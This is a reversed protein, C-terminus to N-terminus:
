VSAARHFGLRLAETDPHGIQWRILYATAAGIVAWFLSLTLYQKAIVKHDTSILYRRVFSLDQHLNAQNM